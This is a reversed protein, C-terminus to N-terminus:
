INILSSVSDKSSSEDLRALTLLQAIMVKLQRVQRVQKLQGQKAKARLQSLEVQKEWLLRQRQEPSLQKIEQYKM